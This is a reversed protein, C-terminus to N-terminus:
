KYSRQSQKVYEFELKEKHLRPRSLDGSFEWAAVYSFDEDDRKAEGNPRTSKASTAAARNTGICRTSHM